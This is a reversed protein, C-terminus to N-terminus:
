CMISGRRPISSVELGASKARDVFGSANCNLRTYTCGTTDKALNIIENFRGSAYGVCNALANAPAYTPNGKICTNWGGSGTVIYNKDNNPRTTRMIYGAAGIGEPDDANLNEVESNEDSDNMEEPTEVNFLYQIDEDDIDDRLFAKAVMVQVEQPAQEIRKIREETSLQAM